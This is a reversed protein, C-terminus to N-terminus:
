RVRFRAARDRGTVKIRTRVLVRARVRVQMSEFRPQVCDGTGQRESNSSEAIEM